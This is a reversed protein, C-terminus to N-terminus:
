RSEWKVNRARSTAAAAIQLAGDPPVSFNIKEIPM